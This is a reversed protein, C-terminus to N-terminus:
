DKSDTEQWVTLDHNGLLNDTEALCIEILDPGRHFFNHIVCPM